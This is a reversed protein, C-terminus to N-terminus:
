KSEHPQNKMLQNTKKIVIKMKIKHQNKKIEKQNQNLNVKRKRFLLPFIKKMERLLFLNIIPLLILKQKRNKVKRQQFQPKKKKKKHLQVLLILSKVIIIKSAQIQIKKNKIKNEKSLMTIKKIIM